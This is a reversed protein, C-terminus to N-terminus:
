NNGTEYLKGSAWALGTHSIKYKALLETLKINAQLLYIERSNVLFLSSEGANFKQKEAKLLLEYNTVAKKYLTIQEFITAQELYFGKTKNQLELLKQQQGFSTDQIKLKTLQLNGRQERLFIPLSLTIGWKYNNASLNNVLDNALPENIANYTLDIKPKLKETKLKKDIVLSALKYNYLQMDPHNSALQNVLSNLTDVSVIPNINVEEFLPARLSDTIELPVNNEFWIFNSLKLTTNQYNLKFQNTNMEYNQIQIFAELTDIAPKDGLQYSRKVANFRDIALQLAEEYIKYKNWSEVWKWYQEIADFYLNNMIKQQEATSSQAFIQAQKLAARREDIFLGQGVSVSIGTQLLGNSPTNNEPNLYMGSNQDFGTKLEIGYWTPIKLGAQLLHFYEKSNYDKQNLNSYLYPDFGGRAKKITNEGQKILLNSQLSIPHYSKVFWVLQDETFIKKETQGWSNFSVTTLLILLYRFLIM